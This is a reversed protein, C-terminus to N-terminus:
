PPPSPTAAGHGTQRGASGHQSTLFIALAVLLIAGALLLLDMPTSYSIKVAYGFLEIMLILLVLRAVREKLDDLDHVKLLRPARGGHRDAVDDVFLEYLGLGAILLIACLLFGDLVKVIDTIIETRAEARDAGDLGAYGVLEAAFQAMDVFTVWLAGLALVVCAVSAVAMMLRAQLLARGIVATRRQRGRGVQGDAPVDAPGYASM